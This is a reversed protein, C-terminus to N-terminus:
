KPTSPTVSLRIEVVVLTWKQWSGTPLMQWMFPRIRTTCGVIPKPKKILIKFIIRLGKILCGTKVVEHVGSSMPTPLPAKAGKSKSFQLLFLKKQLKSHSFVFKVVKPGGRSFNQIFGKTAGRSFIRGLGMSTGSNKKKIQTCIKPFSLRPKRRFSIKM